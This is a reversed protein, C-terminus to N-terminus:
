WSLSPVFMPFASLFVRTRYLQRTGDVVRALRARDDHALVRVRHAVAVAAQVLVQESSCMSMYVHHWIDIFTM